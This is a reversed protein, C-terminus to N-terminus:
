QRDLKVRAAARKECFYEVKHITKSSKRFETSHCTLNGPHLAEEPTDRYIVIYIYQIFQV